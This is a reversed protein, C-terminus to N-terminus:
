NGPKPKPPSGTDKIDEEVTERMIEDILPFLHIQTLRITEAAFQPSVENFKTGTPSKYFALLDKLEDLTFFKAYLPYFVDSIYKNFDLRKFFKDRFFVDMNKRKDTVIKIIEEKQKDSLNKQNELSKRIMVPYMEDMQSFMSQMVDKMNKEANTARIIEAIVAKKEDSIQPTTEQSIANSACLLIILLFCFILNKM